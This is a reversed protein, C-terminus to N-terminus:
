RGQLEDVTGHKYYDILPLGVNNTGVQANIYPVVQSLAQM